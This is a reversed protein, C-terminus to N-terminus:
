GGKLIAVIMRYIYTLVASDGIGKVMEVIKERYYEKETM